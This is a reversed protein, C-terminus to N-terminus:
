DDEDIAIQMDDPEPLLAKKKPPLPVEAKNEGIPEKKVDSDGELKRPSPQPPIEEEAQIM